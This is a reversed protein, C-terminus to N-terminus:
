NKKKKTLHKCLKSLLKEGEEYFEELNTLAKQMAESYCIGTTANIGIILNEPVFIGSYRCQWVLNMIANRPDDVRGAGANKDMHQKYALPLRPLYKKKKAAFEYYDSGGNDGHILFAGYKGEYHNKLLHHYSGDQEVTASKQASKGIGLEQAQDATITLNICVLRDFLLKVQSSTSYWHIPTLVIFADCWELRKYIQADHMYDQLLPDSTESSPAYCDCPYHCHFGNATSVCGKCPQISTGPGISLDCLDIEVNSPAISIIHKALLSTKSEQDPCNDRRRPSGQFLLIKHKM